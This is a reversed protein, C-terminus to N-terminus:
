AEGAQGGLERQRRQIIGGEYLTDRLDALVCSLLINWFLVMVLTLTVLSLWLNEYFSM